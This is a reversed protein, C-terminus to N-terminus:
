LLITFWKNFEVDSNFTVWYTLATDPGENCLWHPVLPEVYICDGEALQYEDEGAFFRVQGKLILCIEENEHCMTEDGYQGGPLIEIFSPQLKKRPLAFIEVKLPSNAGSQLLQRDGKRMVLSSNKINTFFDAMDMNLAQCLKQLSSITPSNIDREVNSIFGVSLGTKTALKKITLNKSLRLWKIKAGIQVM